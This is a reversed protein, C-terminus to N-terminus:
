QNLQRSQQEHSPLNPAQKSLYELNARKASPIVPALPQLLEGEPADSADGQNVTSANRKKQSGATGPQTNYTSQANQRQSKQSIKSGRSYGRVHGTLPALPLNSPKLPAKVNAHPAIPGSNFNAGSSHNSRSNINNM